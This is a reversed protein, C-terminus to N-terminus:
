GCSARFPAKLFSTSSSHSEDASDPSDSLVEDRASALAESDGGSVPLCGRTLLLGLGETWIAGDGCCVPLDLARM